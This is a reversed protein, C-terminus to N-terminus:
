PLPNSALKKFACIATKPLDFTRHFALYKAKRRVKKCARVAWFEVLAHQALVFVLLNGPRLGTEALM